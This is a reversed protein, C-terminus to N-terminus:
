RGVIVTILPVFYGRFNIDTPMAVTSYENSKLANNVM